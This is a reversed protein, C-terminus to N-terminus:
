LGTTFAGNNKPRLFSIYQAFLATKARLSIEVEPFETRPSNMEKTNRMKGGLLADKSPWVRICLPFTPSKPATGFFCTMIDERRRSTPGSILVHERISPHPKYLEDLYVLTYEHKSM